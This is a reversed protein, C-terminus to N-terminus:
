RLKNLKLFRCFMDILFTNKAAEIAEMNMISMLREITKNNIENTNEKELILNLPHLFRIQMTIPM